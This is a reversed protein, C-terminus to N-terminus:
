VFILSIGGTGYTSIMDFKKGTLKEIKLIDSKYSILMGTNKMNIDFGNTYDKDNGYTISQANPIIKKLSKDIDAEILDQEASKYIEKFSKM